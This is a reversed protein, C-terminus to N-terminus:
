NSLSEDNFNGRAWTNMLTPRTLTEYEKTMSFWPDVRRVNLLQEGQKRPLRACVQIHRNLKEVCPVLSYTNSTGRSQTRKIFGKKELKMLRAQITSYHKHSFKTLTTISPFIRGKSSYWFTQLHILTLLEGDTLHLHGQCGLLLNPVQTFNFQEIDASWKDSFNYYTENTEVNM